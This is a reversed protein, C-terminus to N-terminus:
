KEVFFIYKSFLDHVAVKDVIEGLVLTFFMITFFSHVEYCLKIVFSKIVVTFDNGLLFSQVSKVSTGRVCLVDPSDVAFAQLFSKEVPM